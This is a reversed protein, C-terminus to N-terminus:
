WGSRHRETIGKNLTAARYPDLEASRSAQVIGDRVENGDFGRYHAAGGPRPYLADRVCRWDAPPQQPRLGFQGDILDGAM